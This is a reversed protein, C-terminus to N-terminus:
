EHRLKSAEDEPPGRECPGWRRGLHTLHVEQTGVARRLEGLTAWIM